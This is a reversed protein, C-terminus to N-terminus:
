EQILEVRRNRARGEDNDNSAVPRNYGEGSSSLRTTAIRYNGVLVSVVRGARRRSLDMNYEMGGQNDTHGVIKLRRSPRENMLKAIEDLTPTSEPRLTDRDFDFLISYLNVRGNKSLEDDMENASLVVIQGSDMAKTEVVHVFVTTQQLREGVLIAAYVAGEPRDLKALMYRVRDFYIMPNNNDSDVAAGLQHVDSQTGVTFCAVDFCSFSTRFGKSKLSAEYNRFIELSSRGSPATYRIKTVRGEFTEFAPNDAAKPEHWHMKGKLLLAEDYESTKYFVIESGAYRGVLPHDKAGPADAAPAPIVMGCLLAVAVSLLRLHHTGILSSRRSFLSLSVADGVHDADDYLRHSSQPAFRTYMLAADDLHLLDVIAVPSERRYSYIRPSMM